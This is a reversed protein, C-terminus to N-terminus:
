SRATSQISALAAMTAASATWRSGEPGARTRWRRPTSPPPKRPGGYFWRADDSMIRGKSANLQEDLQGILLARTALATFLSLLVASLAVLAVVRLVLQRALTGRGTPVSPAASDLTEAPAIAPRADLTEPPSSMM